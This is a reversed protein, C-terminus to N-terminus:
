LTQHVECVMFDKSQIICLIYLAYIMHHQINCVEEAMSTAIMLNVDGADFSQFQETFAATTLRFGAAANTCTAYAVGCDFLARLTADSHVYQQLLHTCIRHQVYVIGRFADGSNKRATHLKILVRKLQALRSPISGNLQESAAAAAAVAATDATNTSDPESSCGAVPEWQSERQATCKTHICL